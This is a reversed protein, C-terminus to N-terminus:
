KTEIFNYDIAVNTQYWKGSRGIVVVDGVECVVGEFQEGEYINLAKDALTIAELTNTGELIFVQINVIGTREFKRTRKTGITHQSNKIPTISLRVWSADSGESDYSVNDYAIPTTNDWEVIFRKTIANVAEVQSTM